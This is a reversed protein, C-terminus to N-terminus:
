TDVRIGPVVTAPLPAGDVLAAGADLRDLRPILRM